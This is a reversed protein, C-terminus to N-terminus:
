GPGDPGNLLEGYVASLLDMSGDESLDVVEVRPHGTATDAEDKSRCLLCDALRVMDLSAGILSTRPQLDSIVIRKGLAKAALLAVEGACTYPHCIHVLDFADLKAPLEWTRVTEMGAGHVREDSTVADPEHRTAESSGATYRVRTVTWPWGPRTAAPLSREWAPVPGPTARTEPDAFVVLIETM